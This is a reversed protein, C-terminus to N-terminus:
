SASRRQRFRNGYRKPWRGTMASLVLMGIGTILVLLGAVESATLVGVSEQGTAENDSQTATPTAVTAKMQKAAEAKRTAASAAPITAKEGGPMGPAVEFTTPEVEQQARAPSTLLLAAGLAILIVQARIIKEFKM